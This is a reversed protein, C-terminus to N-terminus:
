PSPASNRAPPHSAAVTLQQARNQPRALFFLCCGLSAVALLLSKPSEVILHFLAYRYIFYVFVALFVGPLIDAFFHQKTYLASLAIFLPFIWVLFIPFGFESYGNATIHISTLTAVAVHMSPFCNGGKDIRQIFKLFKSSACTATYSRWKAPTRVPYFYSIIIHSFLLAIYSVCTLYFESLSSLTLITSLIYPYYAFSYVWVWQPQFPIIEDISSVNGISAEKIPRRQPLFYFQYGAVILLVSLFLAYIAEFHSLM